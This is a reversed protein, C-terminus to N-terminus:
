GSETGYGWTQMGHACIEEITRIEDEPLTSEFSGITQDARTITAHGSLRGRDQVARDVAPDGPLELHRLVAAVTDAARSVLDEYRVALAHQLYSTASAYLNAWNHAFSGVDIAAAAPFDAAVGPRDRYRRWSAWADRPDRVLVVFRTHPLATQVAHAAEPDPLKDGWHTITPDDALRAYFDELMRPAHRRLLDAFSASHEAPVIGRLDTEEDLICRLREGKTTGAYRAFFYLADVVRAENTICVRPHADLIQWLRSSGCRATGVIFFPQHM